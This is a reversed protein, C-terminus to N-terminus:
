NIGLTEAVEKTVIGWAPIFAVSTGEPVEEGSAVCEMPCTTTVWEVESLDVGEPLSVANAAEKAAKEAAKAAKVEEKAPKCWPALLCNGCEKDRSSFTSFCAQQSIFFDRQTPDNLSWWGGGDAPPEVVAMEVPAPAPPAPAPAPAPAVAVVPAPAPAPAPASVLAPDAWRGHGVKTAMGEARLANLVNTALSPLKAKGSPYVGAELSDKFGMQHAVREALTAVKINSEGKLANIVHPTISDQNM